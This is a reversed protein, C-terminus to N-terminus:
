IGYIFSVILSSQSHCYWDLISQKSLQHIIDGLILPGFVCDLLDFLSINNYITNPSELYFLICVHFIMLLLSEAFNYFWWEDFLSFQKVPRFSTWRELSNQRTKVGFQLSLIFTKGVFKLPQNGFWCFCFINSPGNSDQQIHCILWSSKVSVVRIDLWAALLGAM